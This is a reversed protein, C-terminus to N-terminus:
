RTGASGAFAGAVSNAEATGTQVTGASGGATTTAGASNSGGRSTAGGTARTTTTTGGRSLSTATQYFGATGANSLVPVPVLCAGQICRADSMCDSNRMCSDSKACGLLSLAGTAVVVVCLTSSHSM